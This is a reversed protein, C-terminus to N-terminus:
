RKRKPWAPNIDALSRKISRTDGTLEVTTCDQFTVGNRSNTKCRGLLRTTDRIECGEFHYTAAANSAYISSFPGNFVCNEMRVLLGRGVRFLNGFGARTRGYGAEFRCDSAYFAGTRAAFMVSGGAGMDFGIVRCSEVRITAPSEHRLDTMYDGNCDLTLNRFTLSVIEDDTSIEEIRLLTENMGVGIILLDKPAKKGRPFLHDINLAHVGAPYELTAGDPVAERSTRRSTGDLRPGPIKREFHAAFADRDAVLRPMRASSAGLGRLLKMTGGRKADELRRQEEVYERALRLAQTLEARDSLAHFEARASEAAQRIRRREADTPKRGVERAWYGGVVDKMATSPGSETPQPLEVPTSSAPASDREPLQASRDRRAPTSDADQSSGMLFGCVCALVAVGAWVIDRRM